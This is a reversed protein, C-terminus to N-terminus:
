SATGIFICPSDETYSITIRAGREVLADSYASTIFREAAKMTVDVYAMVPFVRGEKGEIPAHQGVAIHFSARGKARRVRLFKIAQEPTMNTRTSEM